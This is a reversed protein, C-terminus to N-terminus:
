KNQKAWEIYRDIGEWISVKPSFGLSKALSIDAPFRMVEGRRAEGHVIKVNFKKAIHEVIDKVATDQGSAFNITKGKLQNSNFVLNYAEIIDSIYCYDRKASGDGFVTLDEGRMAKGVMIPILAGFLGSKQREGYLNFPRIITIDLDFSKFYSYSIRDAAAKSAAYPSNPKLEAGENLREGEKITHGDGYVECTSILILRNKYKRIAELVNYTGLINVQFFALPDQLSEDVNIRAAMHFVVDHGRVSKDVIEKDTVSGWILNVKDLVNSLNARSIESYTNLVSVSHGNQLFFEALHSGQFGGGGTILIKM